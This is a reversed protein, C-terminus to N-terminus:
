RRREKQEEGENRASRRDGLGLYWRELHGQQPRTCGPRAKVPETRADEDLRATLLEEEINAAAGGLAYGLEVNRERAYTPDEESVQVGVM